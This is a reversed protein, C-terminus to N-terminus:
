NKIGLLISLLQLIHSQVKMSNMNKHQILDKYFKKAGNFAYFDINRLILKKVKM